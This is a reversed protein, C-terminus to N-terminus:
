RHGGAPPGSRHGGGGDPGPNVAPTDGGSGPGFGDFVIVDYLENGVWLVVVLGLIGVVKQWGSTGTVADRDPGVATDEGPDPDSVKETM